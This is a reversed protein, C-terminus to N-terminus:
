AASYAYERLVLTTRYLDGLADTLSDRGEMCNVRRLLGLLLLLVSVVGFYSVVPEPCLFSVAFAFLPWPQLGEVKM